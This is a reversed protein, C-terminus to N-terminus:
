GEIFLIDGVPTRIGEGDARNHSSLLDHLKSAKIANTHYSKNWDKTATKTCGEQAAEDPDTAGEDEQLRDSRLNATTMGQLAEPLYIASSCIIMNM